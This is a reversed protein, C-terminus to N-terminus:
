TAMRRLGGISANTFCSIQLPDQNTDSPMPYCERRLSAMDWVRSDAHTRAHANRHEVLREKEQLRCLSSIMRGDCSRDMDTPMDAPLYAPLRIPPRTM